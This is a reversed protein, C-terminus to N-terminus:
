QSHFEANMTFLRMRNHIVANMTLLNNPKHKNIKSKYIDNNYGHTSDLNFVM